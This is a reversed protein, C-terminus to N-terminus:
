KMINGFLNITIVIPWLVAVIISGVTHLVKSGNTEPLMDDNYVIIFMSIFGIIYIGIVVTEITM